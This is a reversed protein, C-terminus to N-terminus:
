NALRGSPMAEESMPLRDEAIDLAVLQAVEACAEAPLIIKAVVERIHMQAAGWGEVRWKGM